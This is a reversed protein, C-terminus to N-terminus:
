GATRFSSPSKGEWRKFARTFNSTDSFGLLFTIETISLSSQKVYSLAMEKRIAELLEHFNTDRNGLKFQLTSASMCLASAVKERSCDGSPLFEIIKQKVLTVVDDKDLRAMYRTAINDNLQALEACAGLLPAHADSKRLVLEAKPVGFAVPCRFMAEYPGAGDRPMPHHLAVRVPAFDPRYLQRMATVVFGVFADETEGCLEVLQLVQVVVEDGTEQVTIVATQSALRFYKELRRCFELLNTSAALAYGLAHLNSIQIFKAVTLGFYPNLTVEVCARYLRTLTDVPLRSMPDNSLTKPIGVANLIRKSDVGSHDLAKAIAMAYGSITTPGDM